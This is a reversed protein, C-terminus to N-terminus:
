FIWKKTNYLTNDIDNLLDIYIDKTPYAFALKEALIKASYYEMMQHYMKFQLLLIEHTDNTKKIKGSYENITALIESGFFKNKEFVHSLKNRKVLIEYAILRSNGWPPTNISLTKELYFNAKEFDEKKAYQLALISLSIASDTYTFNLEPPNGSELISLVFDKLVGMENMVAATFHSANDMAVEIVNNGYLPFIRKEFFLRDKKVNRDIVIIPKEFEGLSKESLPLHKFEVGFAQADKYVPDISCRPSFAIPKANLSSGYYIAAYGGLSAGYTFVKKNELHPMLINQLEVESLNQYFSRSSHSVFFAEINNSMFFNIGFGKKKLGGAIEDFCIVVTNSIKKNPIYHTISFFDNSVIEKVEFSSM